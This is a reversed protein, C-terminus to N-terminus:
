VVVTRKSPPAQETPTATSSKHRHRFSKKKSPSKKSEKKKKASSDFPDQQKWWRQMRPNQMLRSHIQRVVDATSGEPVAMLMEPVKRRKKRESGKHKDSSKSPRSLLDVPLMPAALEQMGNCLSVYKQAALAPDTAGTRAQALVDGITLSERSLNRPTSQGDRTTEAAASPDIKVVEFIKQAPEVLLVFIFQPIDSAAVPEAEEDEEEYKKTTTSRVPEEEKKKCYYPEELEQEKSPLSPETTTTVITQHKLLERAQKREERSMGRRGSRLSYSIRSNNSCSSLFSSFSRHSGNESVVASKEAATGTEDGDAKQQNKKDKKDKKGQRYRDMRFINSGLRTRREKQQQMAPASSVSRVSARSKMTVDSMCSSADDPIHDDYKHNTKHYDNEKEDQIAKVKTASIASSTLRQKEPTVNDGIFLDLNMPHVMSALPSSAPNRLEENDRTASNQINKHNNEKGSAVNGNLDLEFNDEKWNNDGALAATRDQVKADTFYEPSVLRVNDFCMETKPSSTADPKNQKQKNRKVTPTLLDNLGGADLDQLRPQFDLDDYEREQKGNPTKSASGFPSDFNCWEFDAVDRPTVAMVM